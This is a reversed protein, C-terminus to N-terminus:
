VIHNFSPILLYTGLVVLGSVLYLMWFVNSNNALAGYDASGNYNNIYCGMQTLSQLSKSTTNFSKEFM